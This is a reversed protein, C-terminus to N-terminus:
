RPRTCPLSRDISDHKRFIGTDFAVGVGTEDLLPLHGQKRDLFYLLSGALQAIAAARKGRTDFAKGRPIERFVDSGPSDLKVEQWQSRYELYPSRQEFYGFDALFTVGGALNAPEHTIADHRALAYEGADDFAPLHTTFIATM